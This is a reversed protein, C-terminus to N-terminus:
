DGDKLWNRLLNAAIEPNARAFERVENIIANENPDGMAANKLQEKREEIERQIREAEAEEEELALQEAALRKKKAKNRLIMVVVLAIILVVLAAAAIYLYFLPIGLFTGATDTGGDPEPQPVLMSQVVVNEVPISTAAAIAERLDQRTTNDLTDNIVVAMSIRAIDPGDKERQQLEYSVLYDRYHAYDVIEPVGDGNLDVYIPVDTNDTEGVVGEAYEEPTMIAQLEERSLVGQGTGELPIFEKTETVLRDWDLDATGAIRYDERAYRLNLLNDVKAIYSDILDDAFGQRQLYLASDSMSLTSDLGGGALLNGSGDTISVKDPDIGASNGVLHQIGNLISTTIQYGPKLHLVVAATKEEGAEWVKNSTSGTYINVYANQVGNYTKIIDQLRDQWQAQLYAQKESETTTLGSAQALLNYNLTAAPIGETALQAMAQNVQNSPVELEGDAGIRAPIGATDLVALGQVTEDSSLEGDYLAVYRSNVVNLVIALGLAIAILGLVITVIWRKRSPEQAAWTERVKTFAQKVQNGANAVRENM